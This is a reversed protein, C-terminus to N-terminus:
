LCSTKSPIPRLPESLVQSKSEHKFQTLVEFEPLVNLGFSLEGKFISPVPIKEIKGCCFPLHRGKLHDCLTSGALICKAAKKITSVSALCFLDGMERTISGIILSPRENWEIGHWMIIYFIFFRHVSHIPM